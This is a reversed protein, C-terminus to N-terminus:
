DNAINTMRVLYNYSTTKNQDLRAHVILQVSYMDNNNLM